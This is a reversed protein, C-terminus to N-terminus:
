HGIGDRETDWFHFLPLSVLRDGQIVTSASPLTFRFWCQHQYRLIHVHSPPEIPLYIFLAATNCSLYLTPAYVIYATHRYTAAFPPPPTPQTHHSFAATPTLPSGGVSISVDGTICFALDSRQYTIQDAPPTWTVATDAVLRGSERLCLWVAECVSRVVGLHWM